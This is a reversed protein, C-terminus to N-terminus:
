INVATGSPNMRPVNAPNDTFHMQGADDKWNYLTAAGASSLQMVLVFVAFVKM